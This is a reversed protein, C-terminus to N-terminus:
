LKRRRIALRFGPTPDEAEDEFWYWSAPPEEPDLCFERSPTLPNFRNAYDQCWEFWAEFDANETKTRPKSEYHKRALLLYDSMERFVRQARIDEEFLVTRTEQKRRREEEEERLRESEEHRLRDERKREAAKRLGKMFAEVCGELRHRLCDSWKCRLNYVYQIRLILKGTNHWHSETVYAPYGEPSQEDPRSPRQTTGKFKTVEELYVGLEEGEIEVRTRFKGSEATWVKWGEKEWAWLHLNMIQLARDLSGQSVSIDLGKGDDRELLGDEDAETEKFLRRAESVLKHDTDHELTQM